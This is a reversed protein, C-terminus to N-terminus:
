GEEVEETSSTIESVKRLYRFLVRAAATKAALPQERTAQGQLKALEKADAHPFRAVVLDVVENKGTLLLDRLQELEHFRENDANKGNKINAMEKRLTPLDVGNLLKSLYMIQRRKANHATVKRALDVERRIKDDLTLSNLDGPSLDVIEQALAQVTKLERKKESKSARVREDTM